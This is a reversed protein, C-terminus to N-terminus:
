SWVGISGRSTPDLLLMEAAQPTTNAGVLPSGARLVPTLPTVPVDGSRRFVTLEVAVVGATNQIISVIESQAVGQGLSREAFSFATSLAQWVRDLVEDPAYNVADVRVSAAIEFLVPSYSQVLLPVFPNGAAALSKALNVVAPDGAQFTAGNAGAVTLYVGRTHGFWTWTALAKAIGAFARAYNLYDELSVVRDLTLVHLPASARADDATAPDAGGSAADPNTASKLGQPRDIPQTLQGAQVMGPLGIGKRFVGRINLQGTPTRAGEIGDGFQVIVNQKDDMRTVFARDSPGSDLFSETEHWQLNNVWVQLTSDSGSSSSSSLYTLPSQKLTFQLAANSADGNGLIEHVTEGHTAAVTNANVTVSARDYIRNLAADFLLTTVPGAVSTKSIVASESVIPDAKDAPLLEVNSVATNLTGAIGNTTIVQWGQTGPPFADALFIQQSGAALAGTAGKPVFTAASGKVQLRVRKGSIAVPQGSALQQGGAIELTAGEVPKLMGAARAIPNDFSWPGILPPDAPPLLESQVFATTGRTQSVVLKLIDDPPPTNNLIALYVALADNFNSLAAAIGGTLGGAALALVYADLAAILALLALVLLMNLIILALDGALTLHTTKSSLSYLVPGSEGAAMIRFLVIGGPSAFTIWQPEGGLAPSLGAYTADLNIQMSGKLYNDKFPWDGDPFFGNNQHLAKPDPAQVGFLAARKRFIYVFVGSNAAGFLASLPFDWHITTTGAVPDVSTSTVFHFDAVGTNLTTHLQNDVFLIGDGPNIKLATGQFTASTDVSGVAWPITRQAPIANSAIVATIDNSTEFIAPTQGPGPVSQIRAGAAIVVNDPAGPADNLTFAIFASAAVGPSPRYGALRALEFVSRRDVATRLYAENAIRENYFALIDASLAWADILGITFDSDARTRLLQLATNEPASLAALMSEKFQAHTGARYSVM